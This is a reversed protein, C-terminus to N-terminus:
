LSRWNPQVKLTFGRSVEITNEGSKLIMDEYNAGRVTPTLNIDGKYTMKRPIDIIAEEQVELTMTHGNITVSCEGTGIIKYIPEADYYPNLYVQEINQFFAGGHFYTFPDCVFTAELDAGFKTRRKHETVTVNKVNYFVDDDDGFTLKGSDRLWNKIKRFTAGLLRPARVYNMEVEIEINDYTGDSEFLEGDRGAIQVFSGRKQPAPISPRTTVAVGIDWASQGNYIFDFRRM